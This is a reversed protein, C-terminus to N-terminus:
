NELSLKLLWPRPKWVFVTYYQCHQECQTETHTIIPGLRVRGLRRRAHSPRTHEAVCTVLPMTVLPM